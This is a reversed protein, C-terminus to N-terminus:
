ADDIPTENELTLRDLLFPRSPSAVHDSMDSARPQCTLEARGAAADDDGGCADM